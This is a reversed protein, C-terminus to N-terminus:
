SIFGVLLLVLAVLAMALYNRQSVFYLASCFLQLYFAALQLTHQVQLWLRSRRGGRERERERERPWALVQAGRKIGYSFLYGLSFFSHQQACQTHTHSVLLLHQMIPVTRSTAVQDEEQTKLGPRLLAAAFYCCRLATILIQNTWEAWSPEAWSLPFQASPGAYHSWIPNPWHVQSAAVKALSHTWWAAGGAVALQCSAVQLQSSAVVVAAM